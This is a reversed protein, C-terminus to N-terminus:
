ATTSLERAPTTHFHYFILLLMVLYGGYTAYQAMESDSMM